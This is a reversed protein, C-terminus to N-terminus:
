SRTRCSSAARAEAQGALSRLADRVDSRGFYRDDYRLLLMGCVRSNAVLTSGWNRLQSASMAYKGDLTGRLNSAATGGNLVNMSVMLGLKAKGAASAQGSIWAGADGSEASYVSSAADLAQWASPNGALWSANEQVITTLGPWRQRSYQAMQELTSYSIRQGGWARANAPNQVLMHGAITGNSIYTGLGIGAYRDVAAKWKTLSFTGNSNRVEDSSTLRLVVRAGAQRAAAATTLVNGPTASRLGGTFSGIHSM